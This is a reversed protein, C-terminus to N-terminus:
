MRVPLASKVSQFLGLKALYMLILGEERQMCIM